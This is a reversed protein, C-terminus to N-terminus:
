PMSAVFPYVSGSHWNSAFLVRTGSPSLVAQPQMEYTPDTHHQHGWIRAVTAERKSMDLLGLQDVGPLNEYDNPSCLAFGAPGHASIHGVWSWATAQPVLRYQEGDSLRYRTVTGGGLWVAVEAGAADVGVDMHPTGTAMQRVVTMDRNYLWTGQENGSGGSSWEVIVYNGKSSMTCNNPVGAFLKTGVVSDAQRDYCFVEGKGDLRQGMLAFFRGDDSPAGEGEGMTLITANTGFQSWSRITSETGSPVDVLVLKNTRTGIMQTNNVWTAVYPLHQVKIKQYTMGDLFWSGGKALFLYKEDPSWPQIRSYSHRMGADGIRTIKTGFTPDTIPQFLAPLPLNPTALKLITTEPPMGGSPPPPPPPPPEDALTTFTFDPSIAENGAADKSRIRAHYLTGATLGSLSQAHSVLLDTELMSLSGYTTTLGYEIQGTGPESLAWSITAGNKSIATVSRSSINPATRDPRKKKSAMIATEYRDKGGIRSTPIGLRRVTDEVGPAIVGEGGMFVVEEPSLRQIEDKVASPLSTGHTLLMVDDPTLLQGAVLSDPWNQGSALYVKM